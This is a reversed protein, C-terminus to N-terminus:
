KCYSWSGGYIIRAYKGNGNNEVLVYIDVKTGGVTMKAKQGINGNKCPNVGTKDFKKVIQMLRRAISRVASEIDNDRFGISGFLRLLSEPMIVELHYGNNYTFEATGPEVTGNAETM